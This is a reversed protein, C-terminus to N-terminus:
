RRRKNRFRWFQVARVDESLQSVPEAVDNLVTMLDDAIVTIHDVKSALLTASVLFELMVRVTAAGALMLLPAAFLLFLVGLVTSVQFLLVGLVIPVVVALVLGLAYVMPLLTRTSMRRFRFDLLGRLADAARDRASSRPAPEARAAVIPALEEDLLWDDDHLLWESEPDAEPVVPEERMAPETM